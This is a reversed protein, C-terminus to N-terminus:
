SSQLLGSFSRYLTCIDVRICSPERAFFVFYKQCEEVMQKSGTHLIKKLVRNVAFDLTMTIENSKLLANSVTRCDVM